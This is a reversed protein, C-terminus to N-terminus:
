PGHSSHMGGYVREERVGTSKGAKSSGHSAGALEM